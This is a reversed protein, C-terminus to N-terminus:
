ADGELYPCIEMSSFVYYSCVNTYQESIEFVSKWVSVQSPLIPLMQNIAASHSVFFNPSGTHFVGIISGTTNIM